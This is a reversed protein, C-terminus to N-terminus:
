FISSAFHYPNLHLDKCVQVICPLDSVVHLFAVYQTMYATEQVKACDTILAYNAEIAQAIKAGHGWPNQELIKRAMTKGRAPLKIKRKRAM